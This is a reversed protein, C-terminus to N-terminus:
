CLAMISAHIPRKDKRPDIGIETMLDIIRKRIFDRDMRVKHEADKNSSKKAWEVKTCVLQYQDVWIQLEQRIKSEIRMNGGNKRFGNETHWYHIMSMQYTLLFILKTLRWVVVTNFLIM